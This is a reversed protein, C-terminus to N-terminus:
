PAPRAVSITGDGLHRRIVVLQPRDKGNALPEVSLLNDGWRPGGAWAAWGLWVDRNQEIYELQQDMAKLCLANGPVGFEGLLGRAGRERLWGTVQQMREMGITESVCTPLTGSADADLYQHIEYVFNNGPDVVGGMVDANPTGYYNQFWSHGGTWGNGPVFIQNQVGAERIAAIAANAATLWTETPMTNPENVLGLLVKPQDAFVLALRRWFDAFASVDVDVGVIGAVGASTYRAYNHPDLLLSLGKTDTVYRVTDTLRQLEDPDLEQNLEHQLREWRFPLRILNMGAAAYYDIETSSPYEYDTQYTGPLRQESFEAGALNVGALEAQKGPGQELAWDPIEKSVWGKGTLAALDRLCFNFARTGQRASPITLEIAQVQAPHPLEARPNNRVLADEFLAVVPGADRVLVYPVDMRGQERFGARLVPPVGADASFSVGVLKDALGPASACASLPSGDAPASAPDARCFDFTAVVGFYEAGSAGTPLQGAQGNFCVSAGDFSLTVNSGTGVRATWTGQIGLPNSEPAVRGAGDAPLAFAEPAASAGPAPSEAAPSMGAAGAPPAATEESCSGLLLLCCLHFARLSTKTM